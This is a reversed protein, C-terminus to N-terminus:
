RLRGNKVGQIKIIGKKTHEINKIHKERNHPHM